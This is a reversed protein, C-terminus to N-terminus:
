QFQDVGYCHEDCVVISNLEAHHVKWDATDTCQENIGRYLHQCQEDGDYPVTDEIVIDM